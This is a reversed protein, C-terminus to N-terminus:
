LRRMKRRILFRRTPYGSKRLRTSGAEGANLSTCSANRKIGGFLSVKIAKKAEEELEADISEQTPEPVQYRQKVYPSPVYEEPRVLLADAQEVEAVTRVSRGLYDYFSYKAFEEATDYM